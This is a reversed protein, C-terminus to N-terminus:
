KLYLKHTKPKAKQTNICSFNYEGLHEPDKQSHKFLELGGHETDISLYYAPKKNKYKTYVDRRKGFRRSNIKSLNDDYVYGNRIATIEGFRFFDENRESKNKGKISIFYDNTYECLKFSEFYKNESNPSCIHDSILEYKCLYPNHLCILKQKEKTVKQPCEGELKRNSDGLFVYGMYENNILYSLYKLYLTTYSISPLIYNTNLVADEHGDLNFSNNSFMKQLKGFINIKIQNNLSSDQTYKPPSLTNTSYPSGLIWDLEPSELCTEIFTVNESIKKYHNREEELTKCNSSDLLCPSFVIKIM